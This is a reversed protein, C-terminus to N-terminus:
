VLTSLEHPPATGSLDLTANPLPSTNLERLRADQSVAQQINQQAVAKTKEKQWIFVNHIMACGCFIIGVGIFVSTLIAPTSQFHIFTYLIVGTLFVPVSVFFGGVACVRSVSSQRLYKSMREEGSPSKALKIAFIFQAACILLCSLDLSLTLAALALTVEQVSDANQPLPTLEVLFTLALLALLLSTLCLLGLSTLAGRSGTSRTLTIFRPILGASRKSALTAKSLDAPPIPSLHSIHSLDTLHSHDRSQDLGTTRTVTTTGPSVSGSNGGVSHKSSSLSSMNLAPPHRGGAVGNVKVSLAGPSGAHPPQPGHHHHHHHVGPLTGSGAGPAAGGGHSRRGELTDTGHSTGRPPAAAPAPRGAVTLMHKLMSGDRPGPPM